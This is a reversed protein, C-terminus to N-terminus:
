RTIEEIMRDLRDFTEPFLERGGDEDTVTLDHGM